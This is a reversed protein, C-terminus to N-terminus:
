ARLPIRDAYRDEDVPTVKGERTWRGLPTHEEVTLGYLSLHEPGLGIARELDDGLCRDLTAPLGFILDLSLDTIGAERIQAVALPIREADHTRHMWALADPAFSQVGLSIRNIGAACWARPPPRPSTTPIPRSPSKPGLLSRATAGIRSLIRSIASPDIHSPTGGGFYITDIVPSDDWAPHTQWQQWEALM